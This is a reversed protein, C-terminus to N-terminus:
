VKLNRFSSTKKGTSFHHSHVTKMSLQFNFFRKLKVAAKETRCIDEHSSSADCAVYARAFSAHLSAVISNKSTALSSQKMTFPPQQSCPATSIDIQRVQCGSALRCHVNSACYNSCPQLHECESIRNIYHPFEVEDRVSINSQQWDSLSM